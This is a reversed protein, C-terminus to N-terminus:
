NGRFKKIVKYVERMDWKCAFEIKKIIDFIRQREEKEFEILKKEILEIAKKEQTLTFNGIHSHICSDWLLEAKEKPTKKM